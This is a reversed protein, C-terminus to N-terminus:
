GSCTSAFPYHAKLVPRVQTLPHAEDDDEDTATGSHVDHLRAPHHLSRLGMYEEGGILNFLGPVRGSAVAMDDVTTPPVAPRSVPLQLERDQRSGAGAVLSGNLSM